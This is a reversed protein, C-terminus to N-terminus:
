KDVTVAALEYTFGNDQFFALLESWKQRDMDGDTFTIDPSCAVRQCAFCINIYSAQKNKFLIISHHPIFCFMIEANHQTLRRDLLVGLQKLKASRVVFFEKVIKRNLCNDVLIPEPPSAIGTKEDIPYYGDTPEHSVLLVTDAQEFLKTIQGQHREKHSSLSTGLSLLLLVWTVRKM